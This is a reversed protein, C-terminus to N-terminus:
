SPGAAVLTTADPESQSVGPKRRRKLQRILIRDDDPLGLLVLAGAYVALAVPAGVLLALPGSAVASVALAVALAALAAILGKGSASDFPLMGMTARVQWVRAANVLVLSVMWAVASGLLGHRPILYLNLAVNAVLVGVNDVMNLAVRGSQNLMLGCPGTAADTLKGAVLVIVVGTGVAFGKGFIRTLEGSFVAVVVFGPLAIRLIWSTAAAYTRRLSETMGRRYLDAIRPAFSANVPAMALAAMLVVRSAIQYRGVEASPLYLGLLLTDAWLLGNSALSAVWSVMSFSFIERIQYRAPPMARSPGVLHRLAALAAVAGLCQAILLAVMVGQLGSGSALIGLTLALRLGPVALLGVGAFYRMTLFGQTASLAAGMVVSPLLTLAVLRLLPELGPDHFASQALWPATAFLAGALVVSLLTALGLGLRLTGRLSARDGDARHVAVYRTLGSRFGSMSLLELLTLFAFAQAYQGVAGSGLKRAMVILILFSTAHTAVTGALNLAGGRALGLVQARGEHEGDDVTAVPENM